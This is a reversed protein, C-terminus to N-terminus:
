SKTVLVREIKVGKMEKVTLKFNPFKIEEGQRPIHGLTYLIFGALTEYDGPPLNLDLEEDVEDIRMGADVEFTKEDIAEVEKEGPLEEAARGVIEEALQQLTVLGATGGFEDVIVATQQRRAQMEALLNGVRKTEPVFYAPRLLSSVPTNEDIKKKAQEKLIDEAVLIGVINDISGQYIPFHSSSSQAYIPLFDALKMNEEIGIIETRTVMVERVLRDAFKIVKHLMEAEDREWVGEAEGLAIATRFEEQSITPRPEASEESLTTFRIGILNLVYVFPYLITSVFEIPRAYLLAIKEGQRAAISKPILEAFILTVITIAITAIAAGLNEGWLSVAMITGLTAVATEFFNIGLLVTALFKEPQAVIKAVLQAKPHGTRILHHIRLRQM